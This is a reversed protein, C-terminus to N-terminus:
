HRDAEQIACWAALMEGVSWAQSFCGRSIHPADADFIEAIGGIGGEWLTDLAPAALRRLLATEGPAGGYVTLHALLYEGMLWGWATGQHYAADRASLAGVYRGHYAPHEPPLTRMGPGAYLKEGCIRVVADAQAHTLLAPAGAPLFRALSVALLQNPRLTDDPGDPAIVDYLYGGKGNWFVRAYHAQVRAALTRWHAAHAEDGFHQAMAAGVQLAVYWLANIEVPKGHRPTPVWDGVRVDMWTVQDLGGGAHVLGDATDMGISFHTGREYGSLIGCVSPWLADRVFRWDAEGGTFQLYRQIAAIYWLSADATNYLPASGADPFMNPVLGDKEYRAFTSLISRADAFRRTYLCCGEFAIMTDRGWDTFWPLGALVTMGNTSARYVLFQDAAAALRQAAADTLGSQTILAAQRALEAKRLAFADPLKKGAPPKAAASDAPAAELACCLSIVAATGAPIRCRVQFLACDQEPRDDGTESETALSLCASVAPTDLPLIEGGSCGFRIRWEPAAEPTLVVEAGSRSIRFRRSAATSADGAGRWCLRPTLTLTVARSGAKVTYGLAATNAGRQMALIRQFSADGCRYQWCPLGDWLFSFAPAQVADRCREIDEEAGERCAAATYYPPAGEGSLMTPPMGDAAFCEDCRTWVMQRQVPPTLSAVLLGHHRRAPQLTVTNGAYGGAGNQVSWEPLRGATSDSGDAGPRCLYSYPKM